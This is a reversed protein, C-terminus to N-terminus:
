LPRQSTSFFLEFSYLTALTFLFWALSIPLLVKWGLVMLRDYRYRPLAARVFVFLFLFILTKLALWVPGPILYFVMNLLPLWGGFFFTYL